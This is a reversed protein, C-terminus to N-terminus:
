ESGYKAKLKEYEKREAKERTARISDSKKKRIDTSIRSVKSWVDDTICKGEIIAWDDFESDAVAAAELVEELTDYSKKKFDYSNCSHSDGDYITLTILVYM